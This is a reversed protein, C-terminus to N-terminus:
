PQIRLPLMLLILTRTGAAHETALHQALASTTTMTHPGYAGYDYQFIFRRALVIQVRGTEAGIIEPFARHSDRCSFEGM